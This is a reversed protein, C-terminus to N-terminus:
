LLSILTFHLCVIFGGLTNHIDNMASMMNHLKAGTEPSKQLKSELRCLIHNFTLGSKGRAMMSSSMAGMGGLGEPQM